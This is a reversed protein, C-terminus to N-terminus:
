DPNTPVGAEGGVGTRSDIESGIALAERAIAVIKAVKTLYVRQLADLEASLIEFDVVSISM